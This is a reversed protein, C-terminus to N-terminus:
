DRRECWARWMARYASELDRVFAKEDMLPSRLMRARLSGRLEALLALDRAFEVARKAYDELTPAIWDELGVTSLISATSRSVSRTGPTTIVPVGM